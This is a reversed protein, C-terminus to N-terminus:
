QLMTQKRKQPRLQAQVVILLNKNNRSSGTASAFHMQQQTCWAEVACRFIHFTPLCAPLVLLLLLLLLECSKGADYFAVAGFSFSPFTRLTRHAVAVDDVHLSFSICTATRRATPNDM